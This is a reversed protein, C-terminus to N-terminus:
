IAPHSLLGASPVAVGGAVVWSGEVGAGAGAVGAGAVGPEQVLLDLAPPSNVGCETRRITLETM